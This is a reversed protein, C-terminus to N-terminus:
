DQGIAVTLGERRGKCWRHMMWDSVGIMGIVCVHPRYKYCESGQGGLPGGALWRGLGSLGLSEEFGRKM